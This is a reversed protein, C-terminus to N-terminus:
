ADTYTLRFGYNLLPYPAETKDSLFMFYLNGRGDLSSAIYKIIPGLKIRKHVYVQANGANPTNPLQHIKDYLINFGPKNDWSYESQMIHEITTAQLINYAAPIVTTDDDKWRFVILRMTDYASENTDLSAVAAYRMDLYVTKIKDGIRTSDTASSTDQEVLSLVQVGGGNTVNFFDESFTDLYKMEINQRLQSKILSTVKKKESKSLAKSGSKKFRKKWIM